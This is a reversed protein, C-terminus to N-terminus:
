NKFGALLEDVVPTMKTETSAWKNLGFGGRHHYSADGVLKTGHKLYLDAHKLYPTFDWSCQTAYTLVYEADSPPEGTVIKTEIGHRQFAVEIVRVFDEVVAEAQPNQKIYILKIPYKSAEVRQVKVSTYCGCILFLLALTVSIKMFNSAMNFAYDPQM